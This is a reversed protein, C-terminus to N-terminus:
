LHPFSPEPLHSLSQLAVSHRLEGRSRLLDGGFKTNLVVAIREQKRHTLFKPLAGRLVRLKADRVCHCHSLPQLQLQLLLTSSSSSRAPWSDRELTIEGCLRLAEGQLGEM